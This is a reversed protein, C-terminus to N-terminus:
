VNIGNVQGKLETLELQINTVAQNTFHNRFPITHFISGQLINELFETRGKIWEESSLFSYEFRVGEKYRQYHKPTTGLIALDLDLFIKYKEPLASYWSDNPLEKHASKTIAHAILDAQILNNEAKADKWFYGREVYSVFTQASTKESSIMRDKPFHHLDHFLIFLVCEFRYIRQEESTMSSRIEDLLYSNLMVLMSVIHSLGHYGEDGRLNYNTLIKQILEQIRPTQHIGLSFFRNDWERLVFEDLLNDNKM